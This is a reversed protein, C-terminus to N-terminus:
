SPVLDRRAPPRLAWSGGVLGLQIIPYVLAVAGDGVALHSVVAGTYNFVAGAYAWEKLRPFRPVLLAVAGLVKWVGLIVLFYAPYGLHEIVGRVYPIRLIDWVGALALETAVLLTTVWYAIARRRSAARRDLDPM